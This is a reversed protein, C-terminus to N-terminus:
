YRFAPSQPRSQLEGHIFVTRLYQELVASTSANMADINALIALLPAVGQSWGMISIGGVTKDGNVCRPAPINEKEIFRAVFTAFELGWDRLVAVQREPESSLVNALELENLPSSGPYDRQNVTVLRLNHAAAHALLPTFTAAPPSWDTFLINHLTPICVLTSCSDM